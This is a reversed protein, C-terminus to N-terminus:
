LAVVDREVRARVGPKLDAAPTLDVRSGLIAELDAEVRGLGFLSLGPPLDALLDVDSDPRDEGRAVSGFVGLNRVGHAAAAAVLDHRLRRVRRGVPGSLRALRGPHRRLSLGLEYGAADVLAALTPIAPQRHGSEYASIVSQTVGARAALEAQSLGARTRAQRLLAGASEESGM